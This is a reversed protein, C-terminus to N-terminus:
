LILQTGNEISVMYHTLEKGFAELYSEQMKSLIPFVQDKRIINITCGGFGGGMMRAGMVAENDKVAHVLFDLEPCSVQYLASLGEHTAFMKEGFSEIDNKTLDKVAQQVREIEQVVFLARHYLTVGKATTDKGLVEKVQKETVERYTKVSPHKKQILELAKDCEQRRTNYESSALNHKVNTNFLVIAHEKLQLPYYKHEITDCDLLMVHDKKGFLSAYMDMIGCQVGSFEHEAKQAMLAMQKKDLGIHYLENIAFLVACEVAASSSLGAGLPIDGHICINFGKDLKFRVGKCVGIIYNVWATKSPILHDISVEASENIDVAVIRIIDDERKSIAVEITKDIAAPLVFGHNYDIHEGLMNIRGPSSVIHTPVENFTRHFISAISSM